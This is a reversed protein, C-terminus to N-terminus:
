RIFRSQLKGTRGRLAHFTGLLTAYIKRLRDDEVLCWRIVDRLHSRRMEQVWAPHRSAYERFVLLRNRSMYYRRVASHNSTAPRKWLFKKSAPAGFSHQMGQKRTLLVRYGRELLRFCFEHDVSDIFFDERFNGARDFAKVSVLSGSTIATLVESYLKEDFQPEVGPMPPIGYYSSVIGIPADGRYASYAECLISLLDPFLVSDQDLCLVWQFDRQAAAAFGQNLAAGVGLNEGNRILRYNQRACVEELLDSRTADSNDVIVIESVQGRLTALREAIQEDPQFTIVVACTNDRRPATDAGSM